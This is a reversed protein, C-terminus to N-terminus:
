STTDVDPGGQVMMSSSGQPVKSLSVPPVPKKATDFYPQVSSTRYSLSSQVGETSMDPKELAPTAKEEEKTGPAKSTASTSTEVSPPSLQVVTKRRSESLSGPGTRGAISM